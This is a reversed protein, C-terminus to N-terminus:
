PTSWTSLATSDSPAPVSEEGGGGVLFTGLVVCLGFAAGAACTGLATGQRGESTGTSQESGWPGNEGRGQTRAEPTLTRVSHLFRQRSPNEEPEWVVAAPVVRSSVSNSRQAPRFHNPSTIM